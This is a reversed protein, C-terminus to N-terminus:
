FRINTGTPRGTRTLIQQEYVIRNYNYAAVKRKHITEARDILWQKRGHHRATVSQTTVVNSGAAVGFLAALMSGRSSRNFFM